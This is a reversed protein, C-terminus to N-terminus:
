DFKLLSLKKELSELSNKPPIWLQLPFLLRSIGSYEAEQRRMTIGNDRIVEERKGSIRWQFDTYIYLIFNKERTVAIYLLNKNNIELLDIWQAVLIVVFNIHEKLHNIIMDNSDKAKGLSRTILIHLAEM